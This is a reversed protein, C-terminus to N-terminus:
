LRSLRHRDRRGRRLRGRPPQPRHDARRADALVALHFPLQHLAAREQRHPGAGTDAGRRRLHQARRLGLRRDHDAARQARGEAAGRAAAVLADVGLGEGQDRREFKPDPPPLQKGGTTTTATPSGLTGTVQQASATGLWSGLAVLGALAQFALPCAKMPDRWLEDRCVVLPPASRQWCRKTMSPSACTPRRAWSCARTRPIRAHRARHHGGGARRMRGALAGQVDFGSMGPMHLDLVLCDPEHDEVSRLFDAGCAYTEVAFGASSVLRTLAVRVDADDDVVALLTADNAM